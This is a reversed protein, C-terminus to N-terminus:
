AGGAHAVKLTHQAIYFRAANQALYLQTCNQRVDKRGVLIQFVDGGLGTGRLANLKGDLQRYVLAIGHQQRDIGFERAVRVLM